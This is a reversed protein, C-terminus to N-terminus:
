IVKIWFFQKSQVSESLQLKKQFTCIVDTAHKRKQHWCDLHTQTFSKRTASSLCCTTQRNTCNDLGQKELKLHLLMVLLEETPWDSSSQTAIIIIVIVIVIVIVTHHHYGSEGSPGGGRRFGIAAKELSAMESAVWNWIGFCLVKYIIDKKAVM